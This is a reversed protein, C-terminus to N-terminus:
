VYERSTCVYAAGDGRLSNLWECRFAKVNVFMTDYTGSYLQFSLCTRIAKRQSYAKKGRLRM